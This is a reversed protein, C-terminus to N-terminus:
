PLASMAYQVAFTRKQGFRVDFGGADHIVSFLGHTFYTQFHLRGLQATAFRPCYNKSWQGYTPHPAAAM